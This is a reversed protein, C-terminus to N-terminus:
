VRGGAILRLRSGSPFEIAVDQLFGLVELQQPKGMARYAALLRMEDEPLESSQKHFVVQPRTLDPAGPPKAHSM